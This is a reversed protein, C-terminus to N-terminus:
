EGPSITEEGQCTGVQRGLRASRAGTSLLDQDLLRHEPPLYLTSLVSSPPSTKSWCTSAAGNVQVLCRALPMPVPVEAPCHEKKIIKITGTTAEM